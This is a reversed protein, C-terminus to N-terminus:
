SSVESCKEVATLRLNNMERLTAIDFDLREELGTVNQGRSIAVLAEAITANVESNAIAQESYILSRCELERQLRGADERAVRAINITVALSLTLVLIVVALSGVAVQMARLGIKQASAVSDRAREENETM